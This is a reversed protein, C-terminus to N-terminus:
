LDYLAGQCSGSDVFRVKGCLHIGYRLKSNFRSDAIRKLSSLEVKNKNRLKESPDEKLSADINSQLTEINECFFTYGQNINRGM